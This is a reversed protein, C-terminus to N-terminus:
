VGSKRRIGQDCDKVHQVGVGNGQRAMLVPSKSRFVKDYTTPNLYGQRSATIIIASQDKQKVMIPAFVMCTNMVGWINVDLVRKYGEQLTEVSDSLSFAPTRAGIGANPM